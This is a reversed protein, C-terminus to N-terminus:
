SKGLSIVESKCKPCYYKDTRKILQDNTVEEGCKCNILFQVKLDKILENKNPEM